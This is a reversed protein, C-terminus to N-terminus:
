CFVANRLQFRTNGKKNKTRALFRQLTKSFVVHFVFCQMATSMEDHYRGEAECGCTTRRFDARVDREATPMVLFEDYEIIAKGNAAGDTDVIQVTYSSRAKDIREYNTSVRLGGRLSRTQYWSTDITEQHPTQRAVDLGAIAHGEKM